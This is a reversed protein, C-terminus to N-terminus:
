HETKISDDIVIITADNTKLLCQSQYKSIRINWLNYYFKGNEIEQAVDEFFTVPVLVVQDKLVVKLVILLM